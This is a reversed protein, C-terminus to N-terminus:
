CHVFEFGFRGAKAPFKHEGAGHEFRGVHDFLVVYEAFDGAQEIFADKLTRKLLRNRGDIRGVQAVGMLLELVPFHHPFENKLPPLLNKALPLLSERKYCTADQQSM